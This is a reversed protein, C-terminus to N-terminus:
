QAERKRKRVEASRKGLKSMTMRILEADIEEESIDNNLPQELPETPAQKVTDKESKVAKSSNSNSGKNILKEIFRKGVTLVGAIGVIGSIVKLPEPLAKWAETLRNFLAKEHANYNNQYM